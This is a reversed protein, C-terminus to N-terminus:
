NTCTEIRCDKLDVQCKIQNHFVMSPSHKLSELSMGWHSSLESWLQMYRNPLRQPWRLMLSLQWTGVKSERQFPCFHFVFVKEPPATIFVFLSWYSDFLDLHYTLDLSHHSHIWILLYQVGGATSKLCNWMIRVFTTVKETSTIWIYIGWQRSHVNSELFVRRTEAKWLSTWGHIGIACLLSLVRKNDNKFM